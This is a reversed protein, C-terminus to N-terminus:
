RLQYTVTTVVRVRKNISASEDSDNTQDRPLIEFSGQTAQKIGGLAAGSDKAFQVAGSRASATAEAIMAPRVDNLKTFIYSAGRFDQLVVGQRVLDSLARTTNRVRDVDNTRVLVTQALIFRAAANQSQYERSQLDTVELRGLDIDEPKYGQAALFSRVTATDQDIKAQVDSLIDGSASFRLPLVALDAKVIRESLGRVSVARDGVRANVVGSGILAGAGVLGLGVLAGAVGLAIASRDAM